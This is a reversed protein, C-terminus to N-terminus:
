NAFWFQNGNNNPNNHNNINFLTKDTQQWVAGGGGGIQRRRSEFYKCLSLPVAAQLVVCTFAIPLLQHLLPTIKTQFSNTTETQIPLPRGSIVVIKRLPLPNPQFYLSWLSVM